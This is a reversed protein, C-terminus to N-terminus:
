KNENLAGDKFDCVLSFSYVSSSQDNNSNINRVNVSKIYDLNKLNHQLEAIAIRNGSIGDIQIGSSVIQISKFSVEKPISKSIDYILNANVVCQTDITNNVLKINSYYKQAIENKRILEKAKKYKKQNAPFNYVEQLSQIDHTLKIIYISNYLLTGVVIVGLISLVAIIYKKSNKQKKRNDIYPLFFNFDKM